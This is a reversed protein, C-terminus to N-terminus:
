VNVKKEVVYRPRGKVEQYIAGVYEGIIGLALIIVSGIFLQLIIVTTFGEVAHGTVKQVLAISGLLISLGLVGGGVISILRLPFSSFSVVATLALRILSILSWKTDGGVREEVKFPISVTRFGVWRVMGRFFVATEGMEKWADVVRRDLLKFDTAGKLKYGTLRRILWYFLSSGMKNRLSEKGRDTKVCEIIDGEGNRWKQIMEPIFSPPHQLDGDMLLVGKGNAEKLGAAIAMEKGFNRSLKIGKILPNTEALSSIVEWTHDKSGDDILTISYVADTKKLEQEIAEVVIHLYTGENYVPVVVSIDEGM